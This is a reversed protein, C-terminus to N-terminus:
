AHSSRNKRKLCLPSLTLITFLTAPEPINITNSFNNRVAFIDALDTVGDHNADGRFNTTGLHQQVLDLDLQNIIADNNTDGIIQSTETVLIQIDNGDGGLYTISFDFQNISTILDGEALDEFTGSAQGQIDILDFTENNNLHVINNMLINLQGNLTANGTITISAHPETTLELALDLKGLNILNNGIILKANNKITILAGAGQNITFDNQNNWTTNQGSLTIKASSNPTTALAIRGPDGSNNTNGLIYDQAIEISGTMMSANNYIEINTKGRKGILLNKTVHWLSNEGSILINAETETDNATLASESNVIAGNLINFTGTGEEGVSLKNSINLSSGHGQITAINMAATYKGIGITEANVVAGNSVILTGGSAYKGITIGNNVNWASGADQVHITGGDYGILGYRSNLIAGSTININANTHLGNQITWKTSHGELNVTGNGSSGGYISTLQLGNRITLTGNSSGLNHSIKTLDTNLTINENIIQSTLLDSFNEFIIDQNYFRGSTNITGSGFIRNLGNPNIENANLTGNNLNITSQNSINISQTNVVGGNYINLIGQSPPYGNRGLKENKGIKLKTPNWSTNLDTVTVIGHASSNKSIIAYANVPAITGNNITLQADYNYGVVLYGDVPFNDIDTITNNSFDTVNGTILIEAHSVVTGSFVLVSLCSVKACITLKKFM